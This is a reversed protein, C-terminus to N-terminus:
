KEAKIPVIEGEKRGILISGDALRVEFLPSNQEAKYVLKGEYVDGVSRM